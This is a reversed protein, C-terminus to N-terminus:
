PLKRFKFDDIGNCGTPVLFGGSLQRKVWGGLPPERGEASKRSFNLEIKM